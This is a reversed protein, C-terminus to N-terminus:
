DIAGVQLQHPHAKNRCPQRLVSPTIKCRWRNANRQDVPLAIAHVSCRQNSLAHHPARFRQSGGRGNRLTFMGLSGCPWILPMRRVSSRDPETGRAALGSTFHTSGRALPFAVPYRPRHGPLANNHLDPIKVRTSNQLAIDRYGGSRTVFGNILTRNMESLAQPSAQIATRSPIPVPLYPCVPCLTLSRAAYRQSRSSSRTQRPPTRLRAHRSAM